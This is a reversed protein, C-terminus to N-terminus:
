PTGFTLGDWDPQRAPNASFTLFAKELPEGRCIPCDRKLHGKRKRQHEAARSSIYTVDVCTFGIGARAARATLRAGRAESHARLRTPLLHEFTSGMYHSFRGVPRDFHLLYLVLPSTKRPKM